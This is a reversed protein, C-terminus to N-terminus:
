RKPEGDIYYGHNRVFDEPWHQRPKALELLTALLPDDEPSLDMPEVKVDTGEPLHADPPLVVVGNHVKGLYTM